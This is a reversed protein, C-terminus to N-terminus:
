EEAKDRIQAFKTRVVRHSCTSKPAQCVLTDFKNPSLMVLSLEFVDDLIESFQLM